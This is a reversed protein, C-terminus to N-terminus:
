KMGSSIDADAGEGGPKGDAGLSEIVYKRGALVRYEFGRGWPDLFSEADEVYPEDLNKPDPKALAELSDPLRNNNLYYQFVAAKLSTIQARASNVRGKELLPLVERVVVAALVGRLASADAGLGIYTRTWSHGDRAELEVAIADIADLGFARVSEPLTGDPSISALVDLGSRVDLYLRPGQPAGGLAQTAAAYRPTSALTEAEAGPTARCTVAQIAEETSSLLLLAGARGRYVGGAAAEEIWQPCGDQGEIGVIWALGDMEARAVALFLRQCRADLFADLPPLGFDASIRESLARLPGELFETVGGDELLGGLPTARFAESFAAADEVALLFPTEPPLIEAISQAEANRGACSFLLLAHMLGRRSM